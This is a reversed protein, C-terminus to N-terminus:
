NPTETTKSTWSSKQRPGKRQPHLKYQHACNKSCTEKAGDVHLCEECIYAATDCRKCEITQSGPQGCHPCLGYKKTPQLNQDLAVRHDFVFCEGEFEQYPCEKLYNIIGGELQYVNKYGEKQLDLIGKECRIGGTCFILIKKDKSINQTELYAPFETFQDINPILSKRFTGIQTEYWNRTDLVVVDENRLVDNWQQPSLHNNTKLDFPALDPSGLTVIEERIKVVFRRFPKVHSESDKFFLDPCCFRESVFVKLADLGGLTPSAITSNIGEKGLIVLGQLNWKEALAYLHKSIEDVDTTPKFHYFTTVYYKSSKVDM